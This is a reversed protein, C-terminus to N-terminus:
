ADPCNDPAPLGEFREGTWEIYPTGDVDGHGKDSQFVADIVTGMACAKTIAARTWAADIYTDKGGYIVMMPAAAKQQPLAMQSLLDFLKKQAEPTSPKLDGLPMDALVDERRQTQPGTCAGLAEWNDKASGHRYDDLNFQPRTNALSMLIWVLAAQQDKSLNGDAALAAYASVDAAPSLSVSGILNLDTAYTAAQENAAWTAAGGQSGGFAAWTKSIDPSVKRLARVSDIVNLGATKADLYPHAGPAGLGQYDTAAVAYGLNLYGAVIGAAGFLDKSLSPGCEETIGSTGHAYAIVPWGGARRPTGRPIFVAGSVQTDSGDIGSTSHYLVRVATGGTARIKQDIGPISKAEILTGPGQGTLDAGTIPLPVDEAVNGNNSNCGSQLLCLASLLLMVILRKVFSRKQAGFAINPHQAIPGDNGDSGPRGCLM